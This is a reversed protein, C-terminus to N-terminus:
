YVSLEGLKNHGNKADWVNKNAFRVSYAARAHLSEDADPLWLAVTYTGKPIDSPLAFSENINVTESQWMRPDINGLLFEYRNDNNNLVIYVPREKVIGAFGDNALNLNITFSGGSQQATTIDGDILRFRYGLQREIRNYVSEAPEGSDSAPLDTEKWLGTHKPNYDANMYTTHMNAMETLVRLPEMSTEHNFTATDDWETEGGMMRDGGISTYIEPNMVFSRMRDNGANNSALGSLEGWWINRNNYSGWDDINCMFSDDHYGIRDYQAATLADHGEPPNNALHKLEKIFYPYRNAVPIADPTTDLIHKFLEYRFSAGKESNSDTYPDDRHWEGWPGLIGTELSMVVDANKSIVGNIQAIHKQVIDWHEVIPPTWDWAYATRLIVKLGAARIADFGRQLNDLLAQPLEETIDDSWPNKATLGLYTYVPIYSHVVSINENVVFGFDTRETIESRKYYGREPNLFARTFDGEFTIKSITPEAAIMDNVEDNNEINDTSDSNEPVKETCSTLLFGSLTVILLFAFIVKINKIKKM